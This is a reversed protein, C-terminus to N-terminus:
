TSSLLRIHRQLRATLHPHQQSHVHMALQDIVHLEQSYFPHPPARRVRGIRCRNQLPQDDRSQPSRYGLIQATPSVHPSVIKPAQRGSEHGVSRDRIAPRLDRFKPDYRRRPGLTECLLPGHERQAFRRGRPVATLVLAVAAVSLHAGAAHVCFTNRVFGCPEHAGTVHRTSIVTPCRAVRLPEAHPAERM